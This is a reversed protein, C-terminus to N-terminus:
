VDNSDKGHHADLWVKAEGVTDNLVLARATATPGYGWEKCCWAHLKYDMQARFNVHVTSYDRGYVPSTGNSSTM